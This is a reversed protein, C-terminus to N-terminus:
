TLSICHNANVINRSYLCPETDRANIGIMFVAMKNNINLSILMDGFRPLHICIANCLFTPLYKKSPPFIFSNSVM